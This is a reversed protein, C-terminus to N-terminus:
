VAQALIRTLRFRHFFDNRKLSFICNMLRIDWRFNQRVSPM